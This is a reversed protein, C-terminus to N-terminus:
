VPQFCFTSSARFKVKMGVLGLVTCLSIVCEAAGERMSGKFGRGQFGDPLEPRKLMLQGNEKSPVRCHVSFKGESCGLTLLVVKSYTHSHTWTQSRLMIVDPIFESRCKFLVWHLHAFLPMVNRPPGLNSFSLFFLGAMGTSALRTLKFWSIFPHKSVNGLFGPQQASESLLEKCNVM